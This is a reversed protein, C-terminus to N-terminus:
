SHREFRSMWAIGPTQEPEVHLTQGYASRRFRNRSPSVTARIRLATPILFRAPQPQPALCDFSLQSDIWNTAVHLFQIRLTVARMTFYFARLLTM